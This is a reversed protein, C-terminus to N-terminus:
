KKGNKEGKSIIHKIIDSMVQIILLLSSLIIFSYEMVNRYMNYFTASRDLPIVPVQTILFTKIFQPAEEFIYGYPNIKCTIGSTCCRVSPVRNEISRFVSMSLHQYQCVKSNSWSDNSVNLFCRSGNEYMKACVDAFTDEFCIPTSFYFDDKNFVTYETGEEYLHGFEKELKEAIKPFTKKYKFGETFPVLKIKKYSQINQDFSDYKNDYVLVNNSRSLKKGYNKEFDLGNNGIVFMLDQKSFFQAINNVFAISKNNKSLNSERQGLFYNYPIPTVVSTEPWMVISINEDLEVASETLDRLINFNAVDSEIGNLKPDENHQIAAITITKYSPIKYKISGFICILFIICLFIVSFIINPVFSFTKLKAEHENLFHLHSEYQNIKTNIELSILYEKKNGKKEFFGFLLCSAFIMIINFGSAGIIECIQIIPQYNWQTYATMGYNFGLFGKTKIYEFLTIILFSYFWSKNKKSYMFYKILEFLVAYCFGYFLIIFLLCVLGYNILWYGYCLYFLCGFLFGYFWSNKYNLHNIFLLLPCYYIWALFGAGKLLLPNPNALVFLSTCFLLSLLNKIFLNIKKQNM